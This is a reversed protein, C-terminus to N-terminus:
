GETSKGERREAKERREGRERERKVAASVQQLGNVGRGTGESAGSRAARLGGRRM